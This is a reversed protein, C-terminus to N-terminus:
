WTCPALPRQRLTSSSLRAVPAPSESEGTPFVFDREAGRTLDRESISAVLMSAQVDPQHVPDVRPFGSASDPLGLAFLGGASALFDVLSPLFRDRRLTLTLYGSAGSARPRERPASSLNALHGPPMLCGGRRHGAGEYDSVGGIPFTALRRMNPM